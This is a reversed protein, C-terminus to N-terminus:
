KYTGKAFGCTFIKIIKSGPCRIDLTGQWLQGRHAHGHWYTVAARGGGPRTVQRARNGLEIGVSGDDDATGGGGNLPILANKRLDGGWGWKEGM